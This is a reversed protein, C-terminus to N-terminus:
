DGSVVGGVQGRAFQPPHNRRVQGGVRLGERELGGHMAVWLLTGCERAITEVTLPM